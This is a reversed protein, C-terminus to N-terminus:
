LTAQPEALGLGRCVWFGLAPRLARGEPQVMRGIQHDGAPPGLQSTPLPEAEMLAIALALGDLYCSFMPSRLRFLAVSHMQQLHTGEPAPLSPM